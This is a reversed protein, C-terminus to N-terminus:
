GRGIIRLIDANSQVFGAYGGHYRVIDHYRMQAVAHEDSPTFHWAERKYELATFVGLVRGVHAPTILEPTIGIEDSSKIQKNLQASDNCLGYRVHRGTSDIAVGSNNRWSVGINAFFLQGQQQILAESKSM